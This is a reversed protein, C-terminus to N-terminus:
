ESRKPHALTQQLKWSRLRSNPHSILHGRALKGDCRPSDMLSFADKQVRAHQLKGTYSVLLISDPQFAIARRTQSEKM